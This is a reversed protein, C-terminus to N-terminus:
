LAAMREGCSGIVPVEFPLSGPRTQLIRLDHAGDPRAFEYFLCLEEDLAQADFDLLPIPWEM